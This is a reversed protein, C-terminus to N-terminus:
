YNMVLAISGMKEVKEKSWYYPGSLESILHNYAFIDASKDAVNIQVVVDDNNYFMNMSWKQVDNDTISSCDYDLDELKELVDTLVTQYSIKVFVTDFTELSNRIDINKLIKYNVAM